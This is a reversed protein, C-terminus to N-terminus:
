EALNSESTRDSHVCVRGAARERGASALALVGSVTFVEFVCVCACNGSHHGIM